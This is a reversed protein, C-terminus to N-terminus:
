REGGPTKEEDPEGALHLVARAQAVVPADVMRGNVASVARGRGVAQRHSDVVARAWRIENQSPSLGALVPAIQRPHIMARSGFGDQRLQATEAGLLESDDITASVPAVPRVLAAAASGIVVAARAARLPEPVTSPVPGIDGPPLGLDARLDQEGLQLVAVQEAAAALEGCRLVGRATEILLMMARNEIVDCLSAVAVPDEAKPLCVGAVAPHRALAIQADDPSSELRVWIQPGGAGADAAPQRDLWAMLDTTVQRRRHPPISDELDALLADAGSGVAKDLKTRQDSPVYLWTRVREVHALEESTM